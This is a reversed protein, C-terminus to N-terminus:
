DATGSSRESRSRSVDRWAGTYCRYFTIAAPVFMGGVLSFYLATVVGLYAIPEAFAIVFVVAIVLLPFTVAARALQQFILPTRVAVLSRLLSPDVLPVPLATAILYSQTIARNALDIGAIAPSGAVM